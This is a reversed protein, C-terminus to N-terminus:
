HKVEDEATPIQEAIAAYVAQGIMTATNVGRRAAAAAALKEIEAPWRLRYEVRGTADHVYRAMQVHGMVIKMKM